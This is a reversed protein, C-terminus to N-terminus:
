AFTKRAGGQGLFFSTKFKKATHRTGNGHDCKSFYNLCGDCNLKGRTDQAQVSMPVLAVGSSYSLNSIIIVRDNGEKTVNDLGQLIARM